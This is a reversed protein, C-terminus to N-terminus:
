QERDTRRVPASRRRREWVFIAVMGLVTVSSVVAGIKQGPASYDFSVRHQGGPVLVAVMANNADVLKQRHGDVSVSWGPQQMADAVVLYGSGQANVTAAIRDGDDSTVSVAAPSGSPATQSQDFVVTDAPVGAKLAAVRDTDGAIVTSASAWRVRPLATMRQYIIGSADAQVLLLDDAVPTVPACALTSGVATLHLPTTAGLVSITATIHGTSPLHEGAVAISFQTGANVPGDVFRGSTLTVGPTHLTLEFTLGRAVSIPDLRDTIGFSVGRMPQSSLDCSASGATPVAIADPAAPLPAVTGAIQDPPLVFYKVGMQDLLPSSGITNQNVAPGFDALTATLMVGGDIAQLLERWGTQYFAHGTPTRLNYYLSTSPYMTGAAGYRDHGLNNTLFRHEATVPYFQATSDGPLITHFFSAAQVAVLVPVCLLAGVRLASVRCRAAVAAILTLVGLIAPVEFDHRLGALSNTAFFEEHVRRFVDIGFGLALTTVLAPWILETRSRLPARVRTASASRRTTRRRAILAEYGFAALIALCLGLVVRIRGIFSGGVAPLHVALRRADTSVWGVLLIVVVAGVFYGRMPGRVSDSTSEAGEDRRRGRGVAAGIVALVLAAVGVYSILEIPNIAGHVPKPYICSGYANPVALTVLSATPLGMTTTTRYSLDTSDLQSVFPLLQVMTLLTGLTLGAVALLLPRVVSALSHRHLTILRVIIYGGALYLGFAAVQPFGGFLLSATTLAVILADAFRRTQVLREASWLVFPIIAATRTQPWNSWVVMFGSTAYIFGGLLSSARSVGLRRLFAFTGGISAYVVFLTVFAPALWLPLVYYPLSLPDLLGLDPTSALPGGGAVLSQWNALHGSFLQRRAYAIGPLVSDITDTTCIQHGAVALGNARWPLGNSLLDVSLLTRTGVLSPGLTFAGWAVLVFAVFRNLWSAGTRTLRDLAHEAGASAPGNSM